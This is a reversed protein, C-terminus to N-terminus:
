HDPAIDVMLPSDTMIPIRGLATRTERRLGRAAHKAETKAREAGVAAIASVQTTSLQSSPLLPLARAFVPGRRKPSEFAIVGATMLRVPSVPMAAQGLLLIESVVPARFNLVALTVILPGPGPVSVMSAPPIVAPGVYM